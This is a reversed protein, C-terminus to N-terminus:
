DSHVAFGQDIARVEKLWFWLGVTILSLLVGSVVFAVQVSVVQAIYSIPLIGLPMLGHSMMDISMVRGRMVPSVQLTVITRNMSMNVASMFGVAG